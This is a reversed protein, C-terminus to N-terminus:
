ALSRRLKNGGRRPTMQSGGNTFTQQRQHTEALAGELGNLPRRANRSLSDLPDGDPPFPLSTRNAQHGPRAASLDLSRWSRVQLKFAGATPFENGIVDEVEHGRPLRDVFPALRRHALYTGPSSKAADAM